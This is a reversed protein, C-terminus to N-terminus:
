GTAHRWARFDGVLNSFARNCAPAVCAPATAPGRFRLQRILLRFLQVRETIHALLVLLMNMNRYAETVKTDASASASPTGASPCSTTSGREPTAKGAVRSSM